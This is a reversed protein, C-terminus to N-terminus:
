ARAKRTRPAPRVSEIRRSARAVQRGQARRLELEALAQETLRPFLLLYDTM